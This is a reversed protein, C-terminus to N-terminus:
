LEDCKAVELDLKYITGIRMAWAMVDPIEMEFNNDPNGDECLKIIYKSSDVIAMGILKFKM